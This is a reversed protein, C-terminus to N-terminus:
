IRFIDIVFIGVLVDGPVLINLLDCTCDSMAIAILGGVTKTGFATVKVIM